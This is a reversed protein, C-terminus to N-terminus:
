QAGRQTSQKSINLLIGASGMFLWLANGGYSIFPLTIGTAPMSSTVVAVNIIVQLGIMVTIGGSLLMGFRDPANLSITFSRWILVAYVIMLVLIGIFGLEEGIIALIFDNQPEPLYLNKQISKGLGQGILGGTGLALLSQVVQFGNNLSDAFPDLFSTIRAKWHGGGIADGALIIAAIGGAGLIGTGIVYKWELGALFMIGVIIGCVTIATSLNPQKIILGGFVGMLLILPLIGRRFSLILKPDSSLFASTFVIVAIKAIEGPMISIPGIYIWRTANNVETGVGPIFLAVLLVFSVLLIILSGRKYIHYDLRSTVMMLVVGILAFGGQRKLFFYPSGDDNISDYYSASFVMVIGFIVLATVLIIILFDGAIYNDKSKKGKQKMM